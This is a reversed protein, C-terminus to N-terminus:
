ISRGRGFGFGSGEGQPSEPTRVGPEPDEFAHHAGPHSIRSSRFPTGSIMIKPIVSLGDLEVIIGGLDRIFLQQRNEPLAMAGAGPGPRPLVQGGYEKMVIFLFLQGQFRFVLYRGPDLTLNEGLYKGGGLKIRG